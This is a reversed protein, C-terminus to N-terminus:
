ECEFDCFNSLLIMENKSREFALQKELENIKENQGAIIEKLTKIELSSENVAHESDNSSINM